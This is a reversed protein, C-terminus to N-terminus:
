PELRELHFYWDQLRFQLNKIVKEDCLVCVDFTTGIIGPELISADFSVVMYIRESARSYWLSGPEPIPHKEKM